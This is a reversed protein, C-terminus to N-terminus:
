AQLEERIHSLIAAEPNEAAMGETIMTFRRRYKQPLFDECKVLHV